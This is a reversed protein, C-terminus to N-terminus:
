WRAVILNYGNTIKMGYRSNTTKLKVLIAGQNKPTQGYILVKLTKHTIQTTIKVEIM